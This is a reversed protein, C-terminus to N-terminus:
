KVYVGSQLNITTHKFEKFIEQSKKELHRGFIFLIHKHFGGMQKRSNASLILTSYIFFPRPKNFNYLEM